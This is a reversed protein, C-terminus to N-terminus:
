HLSTDFESTKRLLRSMKMLFWGICMQRQLYLFFLALLVVFPSLTEILNHELMFSIFLFKRWIPAGFVYCNSSFWRQLAFLTKFFYFIIKKLYSGLFLVKLFFDGGPACIVNQFVSLVNQPPCSRHQLGMSLKSMEIIIIVWNNKYTYKSFIQAWSQKFVIENLCNIHLM